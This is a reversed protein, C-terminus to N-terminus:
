LQGQDRFRGQWKARLGARDVEQGRLYVKGIKRMNAVSDLPNADLVVFDASKGAAVTGLQADLRLVKASERTAALIMEMPTFGAAVINEFEVLSHLGLWRNADGASDGGLVERVGAAHLKKTNISDYVRGFTSVATGERKRKEYLDERERILAPAMTERVLPEDLWAPRGDDRILSARNVGGLNPTIWIDHEKALRIYEDDVEQDRVSHMFGEVGARILLKADALDFVHAMSRLGQKKAEDAAATFMEPTLKTARGGRDDVWIKVFDPKLPALERVAQRAEEASTVAFPVDNRSRDAPGSGPYALGRGVTLIRAANPIAEDRLKFALEGFDTGTSIVAVVGHYALRQLHDIYNERTFNAKSMKGTVADLFGPHGHADVLGPVVTKGTLDVRAAGAPVSLQGKRGVQTFRNGEVVFASDEIPAGGNGDILRAGEFLTVGPGPQAAAPPAALAGLLLGACILRCSINIARM